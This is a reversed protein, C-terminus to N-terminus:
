RVAKILEPTPFCTSKRGQKIQWGGISRRTKFGPLGDAGGVDYGKKELRRQMSAISSRLMKAQRAWPTKFVGSGYAIRDGLNGVFLAYLDSNNYKKLVYFNPTVIFHPGNRGAPVLMMGSARAEGAPFDRGSIRKIGTKTWKRISQARDPGEQACSISDPIRVEFGWDRDKDWGFEALYNAISALTDPVSTWINARGDGDFDVAYQLFSSPLFQPQGMAGAWSSKMAKATVDGREIIQLAALTEKRFLDKRTSMFAKTSLVRLASYPLKARGFGSERGWIAVLIQGPVGYAREIRKLTKGLKRVLAKGSRAQSRLNKESFYASPARFEAQSQGRKKPPKSGPPVLDPLKWNLTVGAFAAKFTKKSVGLRKAEPWLDNQQWAKFQKAVKARDAANSATVPMLVILLAMLLRKM